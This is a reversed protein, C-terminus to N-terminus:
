SVLDHPPILNSVLEMQTLQQTSTSTVERYLDFGTQGVARRDSWEVPDRWRKIASAGDVGYVFIAGSRILGAYEARTPADMWLPIHGQLAAELLLAADGTTAVFGTFSVPRM